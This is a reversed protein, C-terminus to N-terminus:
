LNSSGHRAIVKRCVDLFEQLNLDNKADNTRWGCIVFDYVGTEGLVHDVTPLLGLGAKYKSRNLKSEDNNYSSIKEWELNEGTYWDIGASHCVAAHIKQKYASLEVSVLLRKRDRRAHAAAKRHLWRSYKDKAVRGELFAPFDYRPVAM